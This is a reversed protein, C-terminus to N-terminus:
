RGRKSRLRKSKRPKEENKSGSPRPNTPKWAPGRLPVLLGERRAMSEPVNRAEDNDSESAPAPYLRESGSFDAFSLDDEEERM